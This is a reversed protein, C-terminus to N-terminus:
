WCASCLTAVASHGDGGERHGVGTCSIKTEGRRGLRGGGFHIRGDVRWGCARCSEAEGAALM